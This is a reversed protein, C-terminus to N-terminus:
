PRIGKARYWEEQIHVPVMQEPIDVTYGHEVCLIAAQQIDVFVYHLEGNAQEISCWVFQKGNVKMM